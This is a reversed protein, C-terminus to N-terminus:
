REYSKVRALAVQNLRGFTNVYLVKLVEGNFPIIYTDDISSPTLGIYEAGKYLISDQTSQSALSIAMKIQGKPWDEIDPMQAQGYANREGITYFNYLRM